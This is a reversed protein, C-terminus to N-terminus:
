NDHPLEKQFQIILFFRYSLFTIKNSSIQTCSLHSALRQPQVLKKGIEMETKEENIVQYSFPIDM